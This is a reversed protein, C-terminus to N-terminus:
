ARQAIQTEKAVIPRTFLIFAVGVYALYGIIETLSPNSNYGFLAKLLEGAISTEDLIANIDWVHNVVPPIWGINNFESVGHAVLGAAFLILLYSTVNFFRKLNLRATSALLSWGLLISTGLGLTVGALTQITNSATNANAGVFFAAVIFLALEVGERIIAIFALWFISSKSTSAAAKNIGDELETKVRRAQERMWLIMWTLIGAALFMTAGEYVTEAVGVFNLRLM